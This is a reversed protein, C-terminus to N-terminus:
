TARRRWRTTSCWRCRAQFCRVALSAATLVALQLTHSGGVSPGCILTVGHAQRRALADRVAMEDLDVFLKWIRSFVVGAPAGSVM